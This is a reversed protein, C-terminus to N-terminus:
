EKNVEHKPDICIIKFSTDYLLGHLRFPNRSKGIHIIQEKFKHCYLKSNRDPNTKGRNIRSFEEYTKCKIVELILNNFDKLQSRSLDKLRVQQYNEEYLQFSIDYNHDINPVVTLPEVKKEINSQINTLIKGKVNKLDKIESSKKNKNRKKKM